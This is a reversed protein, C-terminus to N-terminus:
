GNSGAPPNKGSNGATADGFNHRGSATTGPEQGAQHGAGHNHWAEAHAAAGGVVKEATDDTLDTLFRSKKTKM